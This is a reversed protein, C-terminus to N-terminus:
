IMFKVILSVGANILTFLIGIATISAKFQAKIVDIERESLVVRDTIADIKSTLVDISKTLNELKTEIVAIDTEGSM